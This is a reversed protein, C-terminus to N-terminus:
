NKMSKLFEKEREKIEEPTLIWKHTAIAWAHGYPDKLKGMRDGWFADEMPMLEQCGAAKARRFLADCDEVYVWLGASVSGEPGTEWTGPWADAVMIPSDGLRLMAHLVSRGDPGPVVPSVLEAGFARQYFDIAERCNGSFWLHPTITHM